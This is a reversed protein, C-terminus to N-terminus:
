GKLWNGFDISQLPCEGLLAGKLQPMQVDELEHNRPDMLSLMGFLMEILSVM